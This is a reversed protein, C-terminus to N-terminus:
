DGIGFPTRNSVGEGKPYSRFITQRFGVPQVQAHGIDIRSGMIDVNLESFIQLFAAAVNSKRFRKASLVRICVASPSPLPYKGRMPVIRIGFGSNPTPVVQVFGDKLTCDFFRRRQGVDFLTDGAVCETVREGGVQELVSVVDPRDLLQQPVPIHTGRHNIGVHEVSAPPANSTRHVDQSLCRRRRDGNEMGQKEM